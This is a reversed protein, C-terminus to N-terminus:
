CQRGRRPSIESKHKLDAYAEPGERRGRDDQAIGHPYELLSQQVGEKMLSVRASRRM